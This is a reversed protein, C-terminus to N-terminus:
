EYLGIKLGEYNDEWLSTNFCDIKTYKISTNTYQLKIVSNISLDYIPYFYQYNIWFHVENKEIKEDNYYLSFDSNSEIFFIKDESLTFNTINLTVFESNINTVSFDVFDNNDDNLVIHANDNEKYYKKTFKSCENFCSGILFVIFIFFYTFFESIM